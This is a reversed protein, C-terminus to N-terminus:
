PVTLAVHDIMALCRHLLEHVGVRHEGACRVVHEILDPIEIDAHAADSVQQEEALAAEEAVLVRHLVDCQEPTFDAGRSRSIFQRPIAGHPENSVRM